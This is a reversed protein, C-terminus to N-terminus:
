RSADRHQPGVRRLRRGRRAARRRGHQPARHRPRKQTAWTLERSFLHRRPQQEFMGSRVGRGRAQSALKIATASRSATGQAGAAASSKEDKCRGGAVMFNADGTAREDTVRDVLRRSRSVIELLLVDRDLRRVALHPQPDDLQRARRRVVDEHLAVVVVAGAHRRRARDVVVVHREGVLANVPDGRRRRDAHDERRERRARRRRGGVDVEGADGRGVVVVVGLERRHGATRRAARCSRSVSRRTCPRPASVRSSAVANGITPRTRSSASILAIRRPPSTTPIVIGRSALSQALEAHRVGRQQDRCGAAAVRAVRRLRQAVLSRRTTSAVVMVVHM